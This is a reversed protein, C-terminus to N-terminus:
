TEKTRRPWASTALGAITIGIGVLAWPLAGFGSVGLPSTLGDLDELAQHNGLNDNITGVLEALDSSIAPWRDVVAGVAAAAPGAQPVQRFGTDLEGVAHVLVVFDAQLQHVQEATMVPELSDLMRQGARAGHPLDTLFPSAVVGLAAVVVFGAVPRRRNRAGFLLAGGGYAAVAGAAVVLFPVREFGGIGAVSRYDPEAAVIRDLLATSRGDIAAAQRRYEDVGAFRGEAVAGSAYVEDLGAAGARLTALDAGYRALVDAELHPEFEDLLQEGAAVQSFLGGVIPGLVLVVGLLLLAVAPARRGVVDPATARTVPPAAPLDLPALAAGPASM